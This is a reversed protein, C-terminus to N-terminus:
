TDVLSELEIGGEDDEVLRWGFMEALAARGEEPGSALISDGERIEVHRRPRYWYRGEREIALVTYGPEIPLEIEGLTQGHVSAGPGVPMRVVVEDTDGLAVALVPHLETSREVMWVMSQAQDGIDEAAAALHLLGRLPAPDVGDTASRLVWLELRHNMEDLRDELHRVEAALSRDRYVLASYALGIAVESLNKMEILTDIARDLDTLAVAEPPQPAVYAPAGALERLRTIGAPSGRLFFVDGPHLIEDGGPDIIWNRARRIAMIRMGTVVPLEFSSLPRNAFHSGAAVEVRHSIEEASSLDVVLEHPIGLRRTVIRAIDVADNAIRELASVVQLVASMAEAERPHRVAIICLTRMQHVLASIDVELGDVEDAMDPDNFYVAAYALDVMLESTDKAEALMERLTRSEM